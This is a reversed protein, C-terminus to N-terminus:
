RLNKHSLLLALSFIAASLLEARIIEVQWWYFGHSHEMSASVAAATLLGGVGGWAVERFWQEERAYDM